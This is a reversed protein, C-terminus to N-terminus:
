GCQRGSELSPLASPAQSDSWQVTVLALLLDHYGLLIRQYLLDSSCGGRLRVYAADELTPLTYEQYLWETQGGASQGLHFGTDLRNVGIGDRKEAFLTYQAVM